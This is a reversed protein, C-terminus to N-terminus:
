DGILRSEHIMATRSTTYYGLSLSKKLDHIRMWKSDDEVTVKMNPTRHGIQVLLFPSPGPPSRVRESFCTEM